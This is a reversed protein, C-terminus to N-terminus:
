VPKIDDIMEQKIDKVIEEAIKKSEGIAVENKGIEHKAHGRQKLSENHLVTGVLEQVKGTCQHLSGVIVDHKGSSVVTAPHSNDVYVGDVVTTGVVPHTVLTEMFRAGSEKDSFTHVVTAQTPIAIGTAPNVRYHPSIAKNVVVVAKPDLPSNHVGPYGISLDPEPGIRVPPDIVVLPTMEPKAERSWREKDITEDSSNAHEPLKKVNQKNCKRTKKKKKKEVLKKKREAIEQETEGQLQKAAGKAELDQKHLVHGLKEEIKGTNEHVKGVVKDHIASSDIKADTLYVDPSYMEFYNNRRQFIIIIVFYVSCYNKCCIDLIEVDFLVRVCFCCVNL